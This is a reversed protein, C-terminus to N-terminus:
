DRFKEHNYATQATLWAEGVQGDGIVNGDVEVVAGIEKSSSTIWVEQANILEDVSFFTEEVTLQTHKRLADLVLKRTIGPLLQHDLPPTKVVGNNVIFVNCASAETILMNDNYLITEDVGVERGQQFHMVNGLLSTSKIHCRQWRLDQALTVRFRKATKCDLAQSAPIEFAYAFVTPEINDPYAHFRRVDAGRSVHWYIGVSESSVEKILRKAIAEIEQYNAKYNIGIADLGNQLREIHDSLAVAKGSFTPIVEYIGDGFLFGRDMPSISAENAEVFHGNLYVKPM